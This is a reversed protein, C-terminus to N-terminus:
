ERGIAFRRDGAPHCPLLLGQSHKALPCSTPDLEKKYSKSHIGKNEAGDGNEPNLSAQHEELEQTKEPDMTPEICAKKADGPM